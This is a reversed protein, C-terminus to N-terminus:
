PVNHSVSHHIVTVLIQELSGLLEWESFIELSRIVEGVLLQNALGCFRTSNLPTNTGLYFPDM